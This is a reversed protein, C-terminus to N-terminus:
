YKRYKIKFFRYKVANSICQGHKCKNDACKDIKIQFNDFTMIPDDQFQYTLKRVECFEGSYGSQCKCFYRNWEDLCSAGNKCPSRVGCIDISYCGDNRLNIKNKLVFVSISSNFLVGAKETEFFSIIPSDAIQIDRM